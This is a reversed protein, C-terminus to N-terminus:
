HINVTVNMFKKKILTVMNLNVNVSGDSHISLALVKIRTGVMKVVMLM